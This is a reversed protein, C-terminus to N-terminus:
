RKYFYIPTRYLDEAYVVAEPQYKRMAFTHTILWTGPAAEQYFKEAIKTMITPYLYCFILKAESLDQKLFDEFKLEIRSQFQGMIWLKQIIFPIRAREFSFITSEPYHKAFFLSMQGFGSGLEYITGQIEQPLHESLRKRVKKSTSNPGIQYRLYDYLFITLVLAVTLLLFIAM